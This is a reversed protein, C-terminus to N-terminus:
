PRHSRLIGALWAALRAASAEVVASVPKGWGVERPEIGLLIVRCGFSKELYRALLSLPLRHTSVDEQRIKRRDVVFVTGPRHGGVAADIILVHTPAFKRVEGTANEPAEGADVVRVEPALGKRFVPSRRALQAGKAGPRMRVAMERRLLRVCLSGAADDGKRRNGVGLVFLRGANRLERSVTERWGAKLGKAPPTKKARSAFKRSSAM